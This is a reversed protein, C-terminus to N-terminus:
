RRSSTTWSRGRRVCLFALHVLLSSCPACFIPLRSVEDTLGVLRGRSTEAISSFERGNDSQLIGPVGILTFIELLALAIAIARKSTLVRSGHFKIGHDQYNLLLKFTGDPYSQFDILDVQGRSGFGHTLIPKHGVCM